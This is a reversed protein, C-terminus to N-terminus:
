TPIVEEINIILNPNTEYKTERKMNFYQIVKCLKNYVDTNKITFFCSKAEHFISGKLKRENIALRLLITLM